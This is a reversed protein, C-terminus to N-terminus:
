TKIGIRGLGVDTEGGNLHCFSVELLGLGMEVIGEPDIGVVGLVVGTMDVKQFLETAGLRRRRLAFGGHTERWLGGLGSIAIAREQFFMSFQFLCNFLIPLSQLSVRM